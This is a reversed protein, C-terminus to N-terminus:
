PIIRMGKTLLLSSPPVPDINFIMVVVQSQTFSSKQDRSLVIRIPIRREQDIKLLLGLSEVVRHFCPVIRMDFLPVRM